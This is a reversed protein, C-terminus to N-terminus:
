LDDTFVIVADDYGAHLHKRGTRHKRVLDPDSIDDRECRILLLLCDGTCNGTM